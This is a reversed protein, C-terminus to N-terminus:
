ALTVVQYGARLAIIADSAAVTRIGRRIKVGAAVAADELADRMAEPYDRMRLMGEGELVILVPGGLCELCLFETQAPDLEDFHRRGFAQMGESFSEESGTSVLLVRLGELPRARLAAALALLAGVAALNDNPM